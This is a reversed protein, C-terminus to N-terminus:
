GAFEIGAKAEIAAVFATRQDEPVNRSHAVVGAPVFQAIVEKVPMPNGLKTAAQNCLAGLDADTWKRAPVSAKAADDEADAKEAAARFAAFEDDEAITEPAPAAETVTPASVSTSVTGQETGTAKPYGPKPDPRTVGTKMRWLGDKTTGKTSAHLDASWPWGHADVDPAGDDIEMNLVAPAISQEPTSAFSAVVGKIPAIIPFEDGDFADFLSATYAYIDRVFLAPITLKIEILEKPM